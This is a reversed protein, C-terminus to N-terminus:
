VEIGRLAERGDRLKVANSRGPRRVRVFGRDLRRRSVVALKKEDAEDRGAHVRARLVEDFELRPVLIEPLCPGEQGSRFADPSETLHVRVEREAITPAVSPWSM